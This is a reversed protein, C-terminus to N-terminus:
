QYAGPVISKVGLAQRQKDASGASGRMITKITSGAITQHWFWDTMQRSSPTGDGSGAAELYYAKVDDACFRMLSAPAMGTRPREAAEDNAYAALFAAAAEIPVNALGVTTRGFSAVAREYHPRVAAVEAALDSAGGSVPYTWGPDDAGDPEDDDFDVIRGHETASELLQLAATLVRRQFAADNPAGLPRGLEFPVWLARPPRVKEAHLRVLAILTTAIGEEELWHALASV